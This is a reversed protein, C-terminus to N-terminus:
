AGLVVYVVLHSLFRAPRRQELVLVVKNHWIRRGTASEQAAGTPTAHSYKKIEEFRILGMYDCIHHTPNQGAHKWYNKVAPSCQCHVGMCTSLLAWGFVCNGRWYSEGSGAGRKSEKWLKRLPMHMPIPTIQEILPTTLFLNLIDM